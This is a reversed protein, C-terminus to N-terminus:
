LGEESGPSYSSPDFLADAYVPTNDEAQWFDKTKHASLVVYGIHTNSRFMYGVKCTLSRTCPRKSEPDMVGCHKNPDYVRGLICPLLYFHSWKYKM